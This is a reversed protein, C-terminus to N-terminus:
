AWKLEIVKVSTWHKKFKRFSIAEKKTPFICYIRKTFLSRKDHNLLEIDTYIVDDVGAGYDWTNVLAWFRQKNNKNAM